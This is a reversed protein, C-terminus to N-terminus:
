GEAPLALAPHEPHPRYYLQTRGLSQALEAGTAEAIAAACDDKDLPCSELLKIKILEHALLNAELQAVVAVGLGQKGITVAPKLGHGLGRLFRKQKGTM